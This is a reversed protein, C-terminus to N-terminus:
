KMLIISLRNCCAPKLLRKRNDHDILTQQVRATSTAPPDAQVPQLCRHTHRVAPELQYAKLRLVGKM